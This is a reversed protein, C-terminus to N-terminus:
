VVALIDKVKASDSVVDRGSTSKSSVVGPSSGTMPVTPSAISAEFVRALLPFYRLERESSTV